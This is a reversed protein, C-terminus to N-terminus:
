VIIIAGDPCLYVLEFSALRIWSLAGKLPRQEQCKHGPPTPEM